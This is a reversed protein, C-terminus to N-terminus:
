RIYYFVFTIFSLILLITSLSLQFIFEKKFSYAAYTNLRFDIVNSIATISLILELKSYLNENDYQYLFFLPFGM